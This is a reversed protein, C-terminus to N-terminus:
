RRGGGVPLAAMRAAARRRLAHRDVGVVPEGMRAWAVRAGIAATLAAVGGV